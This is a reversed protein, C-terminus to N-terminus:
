LCWSSTAAENAVVATHRYLVLLVWSIGKV